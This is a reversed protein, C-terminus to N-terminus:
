QTAPVDIKFVGNGTRIPTKIIGIHNQINDDFRVKFVPTPFVGIFKLFRHIQIHNGRLFCFHEAGFAFFGEFQEPGTFRNEVTPLVPVGVRGPRDRNEGVAPIYNLGRNTMGAFAPIWIGFGGNTM